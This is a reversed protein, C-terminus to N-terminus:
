VSHRRTLEFLWSTYFTIHPYFKGIYGSNLWAIDGNNRTQNDCDFVLFGIYGLRAINSFIARNSIYDFQCYHYIHTLWVRHFKKWIMEQFHLSVQGIKKVPINTFINKLNCELNPNKCNMPTIKASILFDIFLDECPCTM